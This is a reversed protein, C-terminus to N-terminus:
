EKKEDKNQPRGAAGRPGAGPGGGPGGRGGFGGRGGGPGMQLQAVDFPKGKMKAYKEQQEST